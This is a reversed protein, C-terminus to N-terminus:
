LHGGFLLIGQGSTQGVNSGLDLRLGQVGNHGTEGKGGGNGPHVNDAEQDARQHHDVLVVGVVVHQGSQEGGQQGNHHVGNHLIHSAVDGDSLGASHVCHGPTLLETARGSIALLEATDRTAEGSPRSRRLLLIRVVLM